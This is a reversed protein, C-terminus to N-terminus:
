GNLPVLLTAVLMAVFADAADRTALLGVAVTVLPVLSVMPWLLSTPVYSATQPNRYLWAEEPQIVREFPAWYELVVFGVLLVVRLVAEAALTAPFQGITSTGYQRLLLHLNSGSASPRM